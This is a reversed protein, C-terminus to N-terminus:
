PAPTHGNHTTLQRDPHRRLRAIESAFITLENPSLPRIAQPKCTAAFDIKLANSPSVDYCRPHLARAFGERILSANLTLRSM